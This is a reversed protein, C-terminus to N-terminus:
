KGDTAESADIADTKAVTHKLVAEIYYVAQLFADSVDDGKKMTAFWAEKEPCISRIYLKTVEIGVKKRNNYNKIDANKPV